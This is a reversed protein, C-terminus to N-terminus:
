YLDFVKYKTKGGERIVQLAQRRNGDPKRSVHVWKPCEDTGYEWLIQDFILENRIYDFIDKNSIGTRTGSIDMAEGLCHQSNNSGGIALNLKPVRIFSNIDIPKGFYERLPEFIEKAVYKMSELQSENPENLIGLREATNSRTAEEYSIHPSIM